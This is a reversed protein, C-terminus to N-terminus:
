PDERGLHRVQYAAPQDRPARRPNTRSNIDVALGWAHNSWENTPSGTDPDVVKRCNCGGDDVGGVDIRYGGPPPERRFTRSEVHLRAPLSAARLVPEQLPLAALGGSKSDRIDACAERGDGSQRSAPFAFCGRIALNARYLGVTWVRASQPKSNPGYTRKTTLDQNRQYRYARVQKAIRRASGRACVRRVDLARLAAMSWSSRDYHTLQAAPHARRPRSPERRPLAGLRARRRRSNSAEWPPSSPRTPPRRWPM